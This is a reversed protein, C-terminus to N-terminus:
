EAPWYNEKLFSPLLDFNYKDVQVLLLNFEPFAQL